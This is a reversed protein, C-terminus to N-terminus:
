SASEGDKLDKMGITGGSYLVLIESVEKGRERDYCSLKRANNGNEREMNANRLQPIVTGDDSGRKSM